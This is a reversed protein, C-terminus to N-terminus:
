LEWFAARPDPPWKRAHTARRPGPNAAAPFVGPHRASAPAQGLAAPRGGALILLQQSEREGKQIAKNPGGHPAQARHLPFHRTHKHRLHFLLGGGFSLMLYGPASAGNASAQAALCARVHHPDTPLHRTRAGYAKLELNKGRRRESPPCRRALNAPSRNLTSGRLSISGEWVHQKRRGKAGRLPRGGLASTIVAAWANSSKWFSGFHFRHICKLQPFRPVWLLTAM